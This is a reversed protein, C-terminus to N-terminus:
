SICSIFIAPSSGSATRKCRSQNPSYYHHQRKAVGADRGIFSRHPFRSEFGRRELSSNSRAETRSGMVRFARGVPRCGWTACSSRGGQAIDIECHKMPRRRWVPVESTKQQRRRDERIAAAKDFLEISVCHIVNANAVIRNEKTGRAHRDDSSTTMRMPPECGVTDKAGANNFNFKYYHCKRDRNGLRSLFLLPPHIRVM